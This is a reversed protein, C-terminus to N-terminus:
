RGIHVGVLEPVRALGRHIAAAVREEEEAAEKAVLGARIANGGVWGAMGGPVRAPDPEVLALRSREDRRDLALSALIGGLMRSPGVGNGTYGFAGFVRDSGVRAVVPLHTPSVDIPGGWANTIARGELGPFFSRLDALVQDVVSADVETLGGLRAGYAIRGGGWGFAIRGDRTTRLYHIMARSDTICEGGTWGVEELLEPVPETIAMHSSTVTLRGRFPSGAANAASGFALVCSRARVTAGPTEASVGWAGGSMRRVPSREFVRVSPLAAVRDRLGVVLRAPHVTAAYPYFAGARFRPSRCIDAVQEPTLERAAEPEGLEACAAVAESWVGDQASAASLQLYGARRYHADVGQQECFEGIQEVAAASARAVALAPEDGYRERLTPLSFWMENAFGGNRGSPGHGCRGAELMVVRAEPELRALEWAAWLGTFGGGVVLLDADLEGSAEPLAEHPGADRLWYGHADHEM